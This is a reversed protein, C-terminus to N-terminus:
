ARMLDRSSEVVLAATNMEVLKDLSTRVNVGTMYGCLCM